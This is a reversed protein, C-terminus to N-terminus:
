IVAIVWDCDLSCREAIVNEPEFLVLIYHLLKNYSTCGNQFIVRTWYVALM